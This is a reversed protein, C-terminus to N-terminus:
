ARRCTRSAKEPEDVKVEKGSVSLNMGDVVYALGQSPATLRLAPGSPRWRVNISTGDELFDVYLVDGDSCRYTHSAVIAPPMAVPLTANATTPSAERKEKKSCGALLVAFPIASLLVYRSLGIRRSPSDNCSVVIM